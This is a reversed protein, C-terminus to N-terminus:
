APRAMRNSRTCSAHQLSDILEADCYDERSESPDPMRVGLEIFDDESLPASCYSCHFMITGRFDVVPNGSFGM